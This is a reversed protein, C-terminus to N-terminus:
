RAPMEGMTVDRVHHLRNEIAWHGRVEKLLRAADARDAGLSIIGFRVEVRKKGKWVM